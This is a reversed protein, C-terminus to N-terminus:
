LPGPLFTCAATGSRMGSMRPDIPNLRMARAFREIASGPEGLWNKIWGGWLWAEALNSNLMLARDILSAAVGLDRVVHALAWASAAIVVADDKGLGVARQALRRVEAIENATGSIRGHRHWLRLM